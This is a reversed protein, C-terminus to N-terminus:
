WIMKMLGYFEDNIFSVWSDVFILNALTISESVYCLYDALLKIKRWASLELDVKKLICSVIDLKAAFIM